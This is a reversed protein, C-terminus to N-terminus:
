LSPLIGLRRAGGAFPPAHQPDHAALGPGRHAAPLLDVGPKIGDACPYPLEPVSAHAGVPVPGGGGALPQCCGLAMRNLRMSGGYLHHGSAHLREAVRGLRVIAGGAHV